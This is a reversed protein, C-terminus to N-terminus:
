GSVPADGPPPPVPDSPDPRHFNWPMRDPDDWLLVLGDDLRDPESLAASLQLDCVLAPLRNVSGPALLRAVAARTDASMGRRHWLIAPIGSRLGAVIRDANDTGELVLVGIASDLKLTLELHQLSEDRGAFHTLVRDPTESLVRWRSRWVRHWHVSRMRELSRVVVPYDGGAQRAWREVPADLLDSPLVFEVTIPGSLHAWRRETETVVSEVVRELDDREVQRDEGRVPQWTPGDWAHWQSVIYSDDGGFYHEFQIILHGGGPSTASRRLSEEVARRTVGSLQRLLLSRSDQALERVLRASDAPDMRELVATAKAQRMAAVIQVAREPPMPLLREVAEEADMRDLVVAAEAVSMAALAVPDPTENRPYITVTVIGDRQSVTPAPAEVSRCEGVARPIGSGEGEVLRMWTLTRALRFNRRHSDGALGELPHSEGEPIAGTTWGGPNSVEVRDDFVRVHVCAVENAYDRHVVANAVIERVAVMPYRFVPRAIPSDGTPTEGRQSQAAVFEIAQVIQEAVSGDLDTKDFPVGKSTGHFRACQVVATPLVATPNEGFLLAGARTLRGAALLHARQLFETATLEPPMRAAIDSRLNARFRSIREPSITTAATPTDLFPLAAAPEPDPAPAPAPWGRRAIRVQGSGDFNQQPLEGGPRVARLHAYLDDLDVFGDQDADVAGDRLGHVLARTFPSTLSPHAGDRALGSATTATIVFRGAGSFQEAIAGAVPSKFAGSHCCDLILIKYRAVSEEVYYALDHGSLATAVFQPDTDRTCLYFHQNRSLGHGSFYFLLVDDADAGAFFRNATEALDQRKRDLLLEVSEFLGAAPDRLADRLSAGDTAPSNLPPFTTTDAEYLSNCVLLARYM